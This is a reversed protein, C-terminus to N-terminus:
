TVNFYSRASRGTQEVRGRYSTKNSKMSRGSVEQKAATIIVAADLSRVRVLLTFIKDERDVQTTTKRGSSVAVASCNSATASREHCKTVEDRRELRSYKKKEKRRHLM